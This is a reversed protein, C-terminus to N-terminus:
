PSAAATEIMMKKMMAVMEATEKVRVFASSFRAHGDSAEPQEQSVTNGGRAGKM